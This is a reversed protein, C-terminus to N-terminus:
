FITGIWIKPRTRIRSEELDILMFINNIINKSINEKKLNERLLNKSDEITSMPQTERIISSIRAAVSENWDSAELIATTLSMGLIDNFLLKEMTM